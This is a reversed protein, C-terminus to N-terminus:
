SAPRESAPVVRLLPRPRSAALRHHSWLEEIIRAPESVFRRPRHHVVLVGARIFDARRRATDDEWDPHFELSDSEWALGVDEFYADPSGLFRGDPLYLRPNWLVPPLSSRAHLSRAWGESASRIGDDVEGLVRRPLASGRQNGAALEARLRRVTTLRRRIADGLFARIEDIDSCLRVTDIVARELPAVTVGDRDVPRPMRGTREVHVFGVSM